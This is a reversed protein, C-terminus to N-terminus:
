IGFEEFVIIDGPNVKKEEKEGDDTGKVRRYFLFAIFMLFLAGAAYVAVYFGDDYLLAYPRGNLRSEEATKVFDPKFLASAILSVLADGKIYGTEGYYEIYKELTDDETNVINPYKKSERPLFSDTIDYNAGTFFAVNIGAGFFLAHDSTMAYSFYPLGSFSDSALAIRGRPMLRLGIEADKATQLLFGGHATNTEGAYLYLYDGGVCDLNVFLLTNEIEKESMKEVFAASGRLGKEEASFAAFVLDFGFADEKLVDALAMLVAIGSANDFAGYSPEIGGNGSTKYVTNDYHAGIVVQKKEPNSLNSPKYFIVNKATLEADNEKFKFEMGGDGDVADKAKEFEYPLYRDLGKFFATLYEAAREGGETGAERNKNKEAFDKLFSFTPSHEAASYASAEYPESNMEAGYSASSFSPEANLREGYSASVFHPERNPEANSGGNLFGAGYATLFLASAILLVFFRKM